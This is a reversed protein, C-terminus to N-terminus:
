ASTPQTHSKLVALSAPIRDSWALIRPVWEFSLHDCVVVWDEKVMAQEMSALVARFQESEQDWSRGEAPLPMVWDLGRMLGFFWTLGECGDSFFGMAESVRGQRLLDSCLQLGRALRPLFDMATTLAREAAESADRTALAVLRPGQVPDAMIRRVVQEDPNELSM